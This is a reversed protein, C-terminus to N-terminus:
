NHSRKVRRFEIYSYVVPAITLLAFIVKSIISLVAGTTFFCVLIVVIGGALWLRGGILHTKRWVTEDKLTWPTRIGIFYNPRVTQLYNGILAFLGGLLGIVIAPNDMKHNDALSFLYLTLACMFISLVLRLSYYKNGMQAIAKKPDIRSITLLVIYTGIGLAVPVYLLSNKGAWGDADGHINFHIAVRDPLSNWISWLYVIPLLIFFWLVLEKSLKNMINM